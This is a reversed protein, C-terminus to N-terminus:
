AGIALLPDGNNMALTTVLFLVVGSTPAVVPEVTDGLFGAIRGLSQGATVQEGVAVEPYFLGDHASRMWVMEEILRTPEAAPPKSEPMIGTHALARQLGDYMQQVNAEPWLGQGGVEALVAPIGAQAAAAYTSGKVASAVVNPLGFASALALAQEDVNANGSRWVISFPVLAENMDGGHLDLYVDARRILNQFIWDAWQEAFTGNPNGPFCRNLNKNDPPCIYISRRAFANMSAIPAVVLQGHLAAPDTRQALRYAAEMGVYEAGHIGATVVLTPGEHAGNLVYLPLKIPAGAFSLELVKAERQGPRASVGAISFDSKAM